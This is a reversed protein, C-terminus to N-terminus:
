ITNKGLQMCSQVGQDFNKSSNLKYFLGYVGIREFPHHTKITASNKSITSNLSSIKSVIELTEAEQKKLKEDLNQISLNLIKSNENLNEKVETQSSALKAKMNNM